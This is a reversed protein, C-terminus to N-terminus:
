WVYNSIKLSDYTVGSTGSHKMLDKGELDVSYLDYLDLLYIRKQCPSVFANRISSSSTYIHKNDIYLYRNNSHLTKGNKIWHFIPYSSGVTKEGTQLNCYSFSYKGYLLKTKDPSLEMNFLDADGTGTCNEFFGENEGNIDIYNIRKDKYFFIKESNVSFQINYDDVEGLKIRNSGDSNIIYLYNLSGEKTTLAIKTADDSWIANKVEVGSKSFLLFKRKGNKRIKYLKSDETFLINSNDSTIGHLQLESASSTYIDQYTTYQGRLSSIEFVRIKNEGARLVLERTHGEDTAIYGSIQVNFSIEKLSIASIRQYDEISNFPYMYPWVTSYAYVKLKYTGDGLAESDKLQVYSGNINEARYILNDDKYLYVSYYCSGIPNWDIRPTTDIITLGNKVDSNDNFVVSSIYSFTLNKVSENSAANIDTAKIKYTGDSLEEDVIKEYIGDNTVVDYFISSGNDNAAVTNNDPKTVIVSQVESLGDEDNVYGSLIAKKEDTGTTNETYATIGWDYIVPAKNENSIVLGGNNTGDENVIVEISRNLGAELSIIWTGPAISSFQFTHNAALTVPKAFHENIYIQMGDM